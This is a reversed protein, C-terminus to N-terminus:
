ALVHRRKIPRAATLDIHGGGVNRFVTSEDHGRQGPVECCATDDADVFWMTAEEIADLFPSRSMIEAGGVEGLYNEVSFVMNEELMGDYGWSDFDVAYAISL